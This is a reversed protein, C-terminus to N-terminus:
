FTGDATATKQFRRGRRRRRGAAGLCCSPGGPEARWGVGLVLKVIQALKTGRRNVWKSRKSRGGGVMPMSSAARRGRGRDGIGGRKGGRSRARGAWGHRLATLPAPVRGEGTRGGPRRPALGAAASGKSGGVGHGGGHANERWSRDGFGRSCQGSSVKAGSIATAMAATHKATTLRDWCGRLESSFHAPFPGPGVLLMAGTAGQCGCVASEQCITLIVSKGFIPVGKPSRRNEPM